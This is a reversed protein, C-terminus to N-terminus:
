VTEAIELRREIRGFRVDHRMLISCINRIDHQVAILNSGFVQLESKFEDMKEDLSVIQDQLQRLGQYILEKTVEAM